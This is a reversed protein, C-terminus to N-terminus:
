GRLRLCAKGGCLDFEHRDIEGLLCGSALRLWKLQGPTVIDQQGNTGDADQEGLRDAHEDGAQDAPPEASGICGRGLFFAALDVLSRAM